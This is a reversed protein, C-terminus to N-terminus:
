TRAVADGFVDALAQSSGTSRSTPTRPASLAVRLRSTGPAVTPPRIAPVVLGHELLAAAADLARQEDGCVFPVIPSPHGPRLRDVHARLRAVLADGEPSRLVGCRPSRPPPTPRRRRPRSSTRAPALERDARRLAGPGAVFGGLAGLTKSCRASACCTPTPPRSSARARAGRASRRARAARAGRACLEVLADVDAVDGDMSFVTDSVVLARRAGRDRLLARSTTSTATATCPRRRGRALRCGDIISAHNLEDSCVLVGTTASRRSCASTRPSAPPSSRAREAASGRRRARARARRARGRASSSAPRARARHGLPRAGRARRRDGRPARHPRPLREVRVVRGAPRRTASAEAAGVRRPRAARALPGAARIARAESAAWADWTVARRGAPRVGRRDRRRARARDPADGPSTITLPPMLVVTDGIPRLLVGRECPRPRCGGAGACGTPRAARARRRGDPGRPAGRARRAEVRRPRAAPRALEDSRERVNALM